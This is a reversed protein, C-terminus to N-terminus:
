KSYIKKHSLKNLYDKDTTMRVCMLRHSRDLNEKNKELKLTNLIETIEGQLNNKTFCRVIEHNDFNTGICFFDFDKVSGKKIDSPSPIVDNSTPRTHTHFAGALKTSHKDKTNKMDISNKNGEKIDDVILKGDSLYMNFGYEKDNIRSRRLSERIKEVIDPIEFLKLKIDNQKSNM